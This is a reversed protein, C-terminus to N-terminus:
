DQCLWGKQMERRVVVVRQGSSEGNPDRQKEQIEANLKTRIGKAIATGDITQAMSPSHSFSRTLSHNFSGAGGVNHLLDEPLLRRHLPLTPVFGAPATARLLLLSSPPNGRLLGSATYRSGCIRLVM